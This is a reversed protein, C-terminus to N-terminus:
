LRNRNKTAYYHDPIEFINVIRLPLLNNVYRFSIKLLSLEILSEIM